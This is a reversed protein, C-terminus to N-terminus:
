EAARVKRTANEVSLVEASYADLVAATFAAPDAGLEELGIAPVPAGEPDINVGCHFVASVPTVTSIAVTLKRGDVYLDDGRRETRVAPVLRELAEGAITVFIRLRWAAESLTCRFHEGIFHQMERATIRSGEESDELDVLREGSVDCGGRFAVVGDTRIGATERVFHSRLEVGTYDIRRDISVTEIM